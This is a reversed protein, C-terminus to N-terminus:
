TFFKWTFKVHICPGGGMMAFNMEWLQLTSINLCLLPKSMSAKGGRLVDTKMFSSRVLCRDHHTLLSLSRVFALFHRLLQVRSPTM